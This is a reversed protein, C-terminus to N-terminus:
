AKCPPVTAGKVEIVKAAGTIASEIFKLREVAEANGNVSIVLQLAQSVDMKLRELQESVGTEISEIDIITTM